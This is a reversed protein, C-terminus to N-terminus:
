DKNRSLELYFKHLNSVQKRLQEPSSDNRILDDAVQRRHSRSAQNSIIRSVEKETLGDREVVRSIQQEQSLDIILVRDVSDQHNTEILLPISFIVYPAKQQSAWHNMQQYVLPHLINELVRKSKPNDFILQRLRSRDLQGNELTIHKGFTAIIENLAPQGPKVLQHAIVDADSVPVGLESFLDTVTTKGCGIGGTIGIILM